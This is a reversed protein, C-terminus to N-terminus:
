LVVGYSMREVRLESNSCARLGHSLPTRRNWFIGKLRVSVSVFLDILKASGIYNEPVLVFWLSRFNLWFRVSGLRNIKM